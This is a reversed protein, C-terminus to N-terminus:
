IAEVLRDVWDKRIRSIVKTLIGELASKTVKVQQNAQPHYPTSTRNKIKHQSLLNEIM